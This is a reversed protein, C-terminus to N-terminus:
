IAKHNINMQHNFHLIFTIWLLIFNFNASRFSSWEFQAHVNYVNLTEPTWGFSHTIQISVTISENKRSIQVSFM